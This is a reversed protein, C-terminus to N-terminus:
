LIQQPVCKAVHHRRTTQFWGPVFINSSQVDNTNPYNRFTPTSRSERLRKKLVTYLNQIFNPAFRSGGAIV